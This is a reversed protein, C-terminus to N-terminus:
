KKLKRMQLIPVIFYKIYLTVVKANSMAFHDPKLSLGPQSLTHGRLDYSDPNRNKVILGFVQSKLKNQEEM